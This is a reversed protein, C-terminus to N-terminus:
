DLEYENNYKNIKIHKQNSKNLIYNGIILFDMETGMFCKFADIPSCVIPEGRINFSTNVLIPVNTIQKFKKILLYFKENYKSDVTQIRASYDVHTIAPVKSRKIKLKEIGFLKNEKETIKIRHKNLINSVLLMYPSDINIDFWERLNEKLIAPAFPRFSERYKIKLNLKKQMAENRPDALISRSGLSRPGFEMKGQFWGIVYGDKLKNATINILKDDESIFEYNAGLSDLINKIENNTYQPGLYSGKMKDENNTNRDNNLENHWFYLAAGIAGGADGSAPQIWLNKFLNSKLVKSNAVCNLGVGGAICLNQQDYKKLIYKSMKLIILEIVDQISRAIDMHFQNIKEREPMRRKQKFLDEFKKNIMTLGTIFNFYNVNLRFSGDEKLDLLNDLITNVFTPKGYPALGMVKYEGSNIKFGLYYTFSSYLLGLSHPFNIEELIKISKDNGIGITTTAHEGVGDITLISASPFPSPYFASAAHSLHHESFFIKDQEFKKNNLSLEDAIKKKQYIKQGLWLPISKKFSAFGYPISSIYSELIREFKLFPKEYFCVYDIEHININSNKLLFNISRNPFNSDHKIRSFREEQVASIIEGDVVLAAASDHYFASIGIIKILSFYLIFLLHL